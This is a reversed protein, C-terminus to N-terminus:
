NRTLIKEKKLDRENSEFNDANLKKNEIIKIEAKNKNKEPNEMIIM